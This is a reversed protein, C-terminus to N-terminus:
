RSPSYPPPPHGQLTRVPFGPMVVPDVNTGGGGGPIGSNNSSSGGTTTSTSGPKELGLSDDSMSSFIFM